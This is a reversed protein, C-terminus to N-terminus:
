GFGPSVGLIVGSCKWFLERVTGSCRRVVGLVGWLVCGSRHKRIVLKDIVLNPTVKCGSRTLLIRYWWVLLQAVQTPPLFLVWLTELWTPGAGPKWFHNQYCFEDTDLSKLMAGLRIKTHNQKIKAYCDLPQRGSKTILVLSAATISTGRKVRGRKGM